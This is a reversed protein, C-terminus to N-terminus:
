PTLTLTVLVTTFGELLAKAFDDVEPRRGRYKAVALSLDSCVRLHLRDGCGVNRMAWEEIHKHVSNSVVGERCDTGEQVTRDDLVDRVTRVLWSLPKM